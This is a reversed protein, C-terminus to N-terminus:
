CLVVGLPCTACWRPFTSTCVATPQPRNPYSIADNSCNIILILTHQKHMLADYTTCLHTYRGTDIDSAYEVVHVDASTQEVLAWYIEELARDM